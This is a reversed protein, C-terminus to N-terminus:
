AAPRGAVEAGADKPLRLLAPLDILSLAGVVVFAIRYDTLTALDEGRAMQSANVILAGLAIGLGSVLQMLVSSLTTAGTRQQPEIDVFTLSNLATFQMSRSLGAVALIPLLLALPAGRWFLGCAAISAASIVANVVLVQRFGFRRLLPSTFLKMGLNGGFYFLMLLGAHFATMGLGVQFLLPLLFPTAFVACRAGTGGTLNATRFTQVDLADVPVLPNRMTRFRRYAGLAMAGGAAVAALPVWPSPAHTLAEMGGLIALMAASALLVGMLDFRGARDGKASPIFSIVLVVGMLGLPVNLLFVWEWSWYTVIFGGLAPGVLPATLAPWTILSIADLLNKKDTNRLVVLRGVPGMLAGGAGQLIRAATFAWLNPAFACLVSAATFVVIAAAFVTRAGFRDAFWGSVPLFAAMALIYSTVGLSLENPAVGFDQAMAPLATVIITSDLGQMFFASAVILAVLRSRPAM